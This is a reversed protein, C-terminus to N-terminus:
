CAHASSPDFLSCDDLSDCTCESGQALWTRVEQAHAILSDIQPLKEAALERITRHVPRGADSADLLVKAEALSFGARKAVDLIALRRLVGDDYRRQGGIRAPAPLFGEREYYRIASANVGAVRAVEGITMTTM